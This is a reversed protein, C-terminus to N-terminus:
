GTQGASGATVRASSRALGGTDMPRLGIGEIFVSVCAKARADDGAIFADPRGGEALVSGFSTNFAKVVHASAPATGATIRRELGTTQGWGM